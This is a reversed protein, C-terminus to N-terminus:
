KRGILMTIALNQGDLSLNFQPCVACEDDMWASLPNSDQSMSNALVAFFEKATTVSGFSATGSVTSPGSLSYTFPITPDDMESMLGSIYKAFYDWATIVAYDTTGLMEMYSNITMNAGDEATMPEKDDPLFFAVQSYGYGCVVMGEKAQKEFDYTIGNLTLKALTTFANKYRLMAHRMAGWPIGFVKEVDGNKDWATGVSSM